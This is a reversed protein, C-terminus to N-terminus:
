LSVAAAAAPYAPFLCMLLDGAAATAFAYSRHPTILDHYITRQGEEWSMERLYGLDRKGKAHRINSNGTWPSRTRTQPPSQSQWVLRLPRMVHAPSDKSLVACCAHRTPLRLRVTSAVTASSMHRASRRGGRDDSAPAHRADARRAAEGWGAARPILQQPLGSAPACRTVATTGPPHPTVRLTSLLVALLGELGFFTHVDTSSPGARTAWAGPRNIDVRMGGCVSEGQMAGPM